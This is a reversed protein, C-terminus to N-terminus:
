GAKGTLTRIERAGREVVAVDESGDADFQGVALAVPEDRSHPQAGADTQQLSSPGTGARYRAVSAFTRAPDNSVVVVQGTSRDTVVVDLGPRGDAEAFAVDSPAVGVAPTPASFTGHRQQILVTVSGLDPNTVALDDLGDGDLDAAAIRRPLRGAEAGGVRSWGGPGFRYVSVADADADTAAVAIGAATR